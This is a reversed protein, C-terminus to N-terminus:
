FKYGIKVGSFIHLANKSTNHITFEEDQTSNSMYMVQSQYEKLNVYTTRFPIVLAQYGVCIAKNNKLEIDFGLGFDMYIRLEGSRPKIENEWNKYFSHKQSYPSYMSEITLKEYTSTLQSAYGFGIAATAYPHVRSMGFLAYQPNIRSRFFVDLSTILGAKIELGGGYQWIGNNYLRDYNLYLMYSPTKRSSGAIHADGVLENDIVTQDEVKGWTVGMSLYNCWKNAQSNSQAIATTSSIGIAILAACLILTKKMEFINHHLSCLILAM